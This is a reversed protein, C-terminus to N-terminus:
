TVTSNGTLDINGSKNVLKGSDRESSGTWSITAGPGYAPGSFSFKIQPDQAQLDGGVYDPFRRFNNLVDYIHQPNHSIDISREIHAHSPLFLGVIVALIFVIILAVVFELVRTM